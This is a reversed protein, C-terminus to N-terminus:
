LDKLKPAKQSILVLIGQKDKTSRSPLDNAIHRVPRAVLPDRDM